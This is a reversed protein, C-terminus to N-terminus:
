PALDVMNLAMAEGIRLGTTYLLGFLTYFTLPRLSSPPSLDHAAALLAKIENDSFIHPTRSPKQEARSEPEPLYCQPEFQRLYSCFQRVVSLRSSRTNPHLHNCSSRYQDIIERTPYPGDFGQQCLFRDFYSLVQARARYDAGESRRFAVFHMFRDAWVSAFVPQTM